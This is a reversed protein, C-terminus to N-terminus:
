QAGEENATSDSRGRRLVLGVVLAVLSCGLFVLSILILDLGLDNLLGCAAGILSVVGIGTLVDRRDFRGFAILGASLAIWVVRHVLGLAANDEFAGTYGAAIFFGLAGVVFWTAPIRSLTARTKDDPGGFLPAATFVAAALAPVGAFALLAWDQLSHHAAIWVLAVLTAISSVHALLSSRWRLAIWLVAPAVVVTIPMGFGGDAILLDGIMVAVVGVVLAGRSRGALGLALAAAGAGYPVAPPSGTLEFIQGTLGIASAFVLSAVTLAIDAVVTRKRRTAEAGCAAATLFAVLLLGFRVLRPIAEWNAGIFAIVALGLLVAAVWILATVADLRRRVPLTALIAERKDAQVLGATIWRDM